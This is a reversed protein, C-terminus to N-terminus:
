ATYTVAIKNLRTQASATFTIEAVPASSLDVTVVSGSVSVTYGANALSTQMVGAYTGSTCTIVVQSITGGGASIVVQSNAYVRFHDSDSTRIATSGKTNTFTVDGSTWSITNTGTTGQNAIISMTETKEVPAASGGEEEAGCDKCVGDVYDHDLMETETDTYTDGCVTCTHTTYGKETCTPETVVADYDHGTAEVPTGEDIVKGCDDCVTADTYGAETCTADKSATSTNTHECAAGVYMYIAIDQQGSSYCSFLPSGNNPNYRMWNRNSSNPAKITAVGESIEIKWSANNDVTAQTKLQNASSSGAYLYGNGVNFAFTGDVAGAELTIIQVNETITVFNGDKVIGEAGRNSTKQNTSLAFDAGNAVIVIQAGVELANVDTVLTWQPGTPTDPTANPDAAGCVSCAGDVYDHDIMETETDTYSDGCASCTHTTYGKETCTPETIVADYDHGTAEVPTGEDIVKGCDDCTVRDTYGAETCTADKSATSTNTHECGAGVVYAISDIMCRKTSLDTAFTVTKNVSTDVVIETYAGDNSSSTITYTTGNVVVTTANDKYQAVKLIVANVDAPATFSFSGSASGTGIKLCSNGQLDRANGYVKSLDTLTLTHSGSTYPSSTTIESGDFHSAAGNDGFEFVVKTGDVPVEPMQEVWSADSLGGYVTILDGAADKIIMYSRATVTATKPVGNMSYMFQGNAFTTAVKKKVGTGGIVLSDTTASSAVYLIGREVLLYADEDVYSTAVVSFRYTTNTLSINLTKKNTTIFRNPVAMQSKSKATLSVDQTAYFVYTPQVSVVAGDEDVWAAFNAANTATATVRNEFHASTKDITGGTCTFQYAIETDKTYNPYVDEDSEPDAEEPVFNWGNVVYGYRAPVAPLDSEGAIQSLKKSAVLRGDHSFFNITPDTVGADSRFVPTAIMDSNVPLTLVADTYVRSNVVWHVFSYGSQATATLTVTDGYPVTTASAKGTGGTVTPVTVTHTRPTEEAAKGGSPTSMDEPITEDFLLWALEPYDIFVNRNGQYAAVVENRGMEWTDVPDEECWRLLTDVSEFLVTVSGCNYSSVGGYRVYMYLCIRAVDGKVNDLPEFYNGSSYGGLKGGANEDAYVASGGDAEGYKKNGRTSNVRANAPRIHHLDAGGGSTGFGGLSQPWVHERNWGGASLSASSVDSTYLLVVTGDENQCDTQCAMDKCDDYSSNKDHTDTMLDRLQNLLSTGSLDDLKDYTYAGTYYGAADTGALTTCLVDREGSNYSNSYTAPQDSAAGVPCVAVSLILCLTMVVALLRRTIKEM